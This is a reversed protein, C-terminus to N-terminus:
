NNEIFEESIWQNHPNHHNHNYKQKDKLPPSSRTFEYNVPWTKSLNCKIINLYDSSTCLPWSWSMTHLFCIESTLYFIIAMFGMWGRVNQKSFRIKTFILFYPCTHKVKWMVLKILTSIANFCHSLMMALIPHFLYHAIEVFTSHMGIRNQNQVPAILNSKLKFGPFNAQVGFKWLPTHHELKKCIPLSM